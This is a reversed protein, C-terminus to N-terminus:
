TISAIAIRSFDKDLAADTVEKGFEFTRVNFEEPTRESLV